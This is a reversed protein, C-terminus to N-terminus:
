YNFPKKTMGPKNWPFLPWGTIKLVYNNLFVGGWLETIEQLSMVLVRDLLRGHEIWKEMLSCFTVSWSLTSFTFLVYLSWLKRSLLAPSAGAQSRWRFNPIECAKWNPDCNIRINHFVFASHAVLEKCSLPYLWLSWYYCYEVVWYTNIADNGVNSWCTTTYQNTRKRSHM